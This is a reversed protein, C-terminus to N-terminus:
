EEQDEGDSALDQPLMCQQLAALVAPDKLLEPLHSIFAAASVGTSSDQGQGRRQVSAQNIKHKRIVVSNDQDDDEGNHDDDADNQDQGSSFVGVNNNNNNGPSSGQM